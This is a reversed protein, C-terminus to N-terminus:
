SLFNLNYYKFQSYFYSMMPMTEMPKTLEGINKTKNELIRPSSLKLFWKWFCIQYPGLYKLNRFTLMNCYWFIQCFYFNFLFHPIGPYFFLSHFWFISQCWISVIDFLNHPLFITSSTMLPGYSLVRFCKKATKLLYFLNAYMIDRMSCQQLVWFM